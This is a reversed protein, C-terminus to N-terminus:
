LLSAGVIVRHRYFLWNEEIELGLDDEPTTCNGNHDERSFILVYNGKHAKPVPYMKEQSSVIILDYESLDVSREKREFIPDTICYIYNVAPLIRGEIHMYPDRDFVHVTKCFRKAYKILEMNDKNRGPGVFAVKEPQDM